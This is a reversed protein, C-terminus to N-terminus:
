PLVYIVKAGRRQAEAKAENVAQTYTRAGDTWWAKTVDDYADTTGISFAWQGKGRPAKCHAREYLRTSVSIESKTMKRTEM